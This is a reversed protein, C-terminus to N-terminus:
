QIGLAACKSLVANAQQIERTHVNASRRDQRAAEREDADITELTSVMSRLTYVAQTTAELKQLTEENSMISKGLM